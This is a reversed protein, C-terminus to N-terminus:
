ELLHNNHPVPRALYSQSLRAVLLVEQNIPLEGYEPEVQIYFLKGQANRVRAQAPIGPRAAHHSILAVRSILDDSQPASLQTYQLVPALWHSLAISLITSVVLVPMLMLAVDIFHHVIVLGILELWFHSFGISFLWLVLMIFIPIRTGTIKFLVYHILLPLGRHVSRSLQFWSSPILTEGLALILMAGWAITCLIFPGNLWLQGFQGLTLAM